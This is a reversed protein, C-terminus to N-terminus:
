LKTESESEKGCLVCLIEYLLVSFENVLKPM